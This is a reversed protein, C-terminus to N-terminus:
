LPLNQWPNEQIERVERHLELFLDVLHPDFHRGRQTRLYELAEDVRWPGRYPRASTLADFVDALAVIRGFLPIRTGSLGAPYGTGDYREHHTLALRAGARLASSRSDALISHGITTHTEMIAREEPTLTAQKMLIEDPIATKGVDHLPAAQYLVRRQDPPLGLHRALLASYKGVRIVHHGTGQDKYDTIRGLATLVEQERQQVEYRAEAESLAIEQLRSYSRDLMSTMRNFAAVATGIENSLHVPLSQRFDRTEAVRAMGRALQQVPEALHRSLVITAVASLGMTVLILIAFRLHLARMEMFFNQADNVIAIHFAFDRQHILYTVFQRDKHAVRHWGPAGSRALDMLPPLVEPESEQFIGTTFVLTGDERFADVRMTTGWTTAIAYSQIAVVAANRFEPDDSLLNDELVQWQNEAYRAITQAKFALHNIALRSMGQQATLSALLGAVLLSGFVLSLILLSYQRGIRM